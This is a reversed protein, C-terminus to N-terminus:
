VVLAAYVADCQNKFYFRITKPFVSVSSDIYFTWDDTERGSDILEIRDKMNDIAWKMPNWEKYIRTFSHEYGLQPLSEDWNTSHDVIKNVEIFM